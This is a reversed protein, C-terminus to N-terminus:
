KKYKAPVYKEMVYSNRILERADNMNALEKKAQMQIVLNGIATAEEPGVYVTARTINAITQNLLSVNGGGGVIILEDIKTKAINSLNELEKKYCIALSDYITRAIEGPLEPIEQNKERCYEKITEVMNDPNLFRNDNVDIYYKFADTQSALEALDTPTYRYNYNRVVEQILWMGIINKLFRITHNTGLENTYNNEYSEPNVIEKKVEVGLLSWTGSSLFAWNKGKGPTGAVASATDHSAVAIVDVEPLTYEPFWENKLTGVFTGSDVIAPFQERDLGIIELLEDDLEKTEINLLQMTSANTRELVKRGTLRYNFYDPVLLITETNMLDKTSEVSLQFLTNFQQFQIGTKKYIKEKSMKKTFKEIAGNTRDDRYSVIEHIKDGNESVLAYDVAWTDIGLSCHTVGKDKIKELGILIEELLLDSDWIYYNNEERFGNKFRHIEEIEIKGNVIKGLLVRGSSAGIDVAVYYNLIFGSSEITILYIKECLAMIILVFGIKYKPKHKKFFIEDVLNM